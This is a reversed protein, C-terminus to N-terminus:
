CKSETSETMELVRTFVCLNYCGQLRIPVLRNWCSTLLIDECQRYCSTRVSKNCSTSPCYWSTNVVPKYCSTPPSTALSDHCHQLLNNAVVNLLNTLVISYCITFKLRYCRQQTSTTVPYPVHDHNHKPVDCILSKVRKQCEESATAYLLALIISVPFTKYNYVILKSDM